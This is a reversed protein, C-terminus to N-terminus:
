ENTNDEEKIDAIRPKLAEARQKDGLVLYVQYLPKVWDIQQCEPDLAAVREFNSRAEELLQKVSDASPKNNKQTLEQAWASQSIAMNYFAEVFNSDLKTAYQYSRVADRWEAKRMKTEGLLVWALKNLSDKHIEDLAFQEMEREHGKSSFFEMLQHFYTQNRPAKDHLELLAMLYRASDNHTVMTEKMCSVKVEAADSAYDADKLAINAYRDAAEFDRMGYSLLSAYYAVQGQYLDRYGKFLASESSSLYIKFFNLAKDNNRHGYFFMGADILKQRLPSLRKSNDHRFRLKVKGKENPRADYDDCRLATEMVNQLTTYYTVSDTTQQLRTLLADVQRNLQEAVVENNDDAAPSQIAIFSLIIIFFWKRM